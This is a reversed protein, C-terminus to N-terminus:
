KDMEMTLQAPRRSVEQRTAVPQFNLGMEALTRKEITYAYRENAKLESVIKKTVQNPDMALAKTLLAYGVEFYYRGKLSGMRWIDFFREVEVSSKLRDVQSLALEFQFDETLGSQWTRELDDYTQPDALLSLFHRLERSHVNDQEPWSQTKCKHLRAQVLEIDSHWLLSPRQEVAYGFAKCSESQMSCQARVNEYCLWRATPLSQWGSSSEWVTAFLEEAESRKGQLWLAKLRYESTKDKILRILALSEVSQQLKEIQGTQYYHEALWVQVFAMRPLSIFSLQVEALPWNQENWLNKLKSLSCMQLNQTLNKECLKVQYSTAEERSMAALFKAFYAKEVSVQDAGSEDFGAQQQWLIYDAEKSLCEQDVLDATFLTIALEIRDPEDSRGWLSISQSVESCVANSNFLSAL